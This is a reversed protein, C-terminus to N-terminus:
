RAFLTTEVAFYGDKRSSSSQKLLYGDLQFIVTFSFFVRRQAPSLTTQHEPLFPFNVRGAVEVRWQKTRHQCRSTCDASNLPHTSHNWPTNKHQVNLRRLWRCQVRVGECDFLYFSLCVVSCVYLCVNLWSTSVPLSMLSARVWLTLCISLCVFM